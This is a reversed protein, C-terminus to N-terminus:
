TCQALHSTGQRHHTRCVTVTDCRSNSRDTSHHLIDPHKPLVLEPMKHQKVCEWSIQGPTSCCEKKGICPQAPVLLCQLDTPCLLPTHPGARGTYTHM